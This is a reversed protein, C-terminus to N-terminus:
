PFAMSGQKGLYLDWKRTVCRSTFLCFHGDWFLLKLPIFEKLNKKGEKSRLLKAPLWCFLTHLLSSMWGLTGHSPVAGEHVPPCLTLTVNEWCRMRLSLQVATVAQLGLCVAVYCTLCQCILTWGMKNVTVPLRSCPGCCWSKHLM